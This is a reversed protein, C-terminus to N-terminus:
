KAAKKSISIPEPGNQANRRRDHTIRQREKASDLVGLAWPDALQYGMLWEASLAEMLNTASIGAQFAAIRIRHWTQGNLRLGVQTKTGILVHGKVQSSTLSGDDM